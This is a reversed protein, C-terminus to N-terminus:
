DGSARALFDLHLANFREAEEWQPMHASRDFVEFRSGPVADAYRRGDELSATPDDQTWLVLTPAAIRGLEEESLLNRERVAMDQLCLIHPLARQYDPQQYIRWRAEILEETINAKDKIVFELRTRVAARGGEQAAKTGLSRLKDMVSGYATLGGSSILSLSAVRAPHQAAIRAAIWGGLSTGVLSATEVGAADMVDLVHRVYHEIEYDHEPKGTYGHGLLDIALVRYQAAHAVVNRLFVELHGNVGHLLLVTRGPESAGSPGAELVRTRVGGAEIWDLRHPCSQLETWLTM